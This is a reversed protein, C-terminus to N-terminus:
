NLSYASLFSDFTSYDHFFGNVKAIDFSDQAVQYNTRNNKVDGYYSYIVALDRHTRAFPIPYEFTYITLYENFASKAKEFNEERDQFSGLSTYSLGLKNLIKGYKFPKNKNTYALALKYHYISQEINTVNNPDAEYYSTGLGQQIEAYRDANIGLSINLAENYANIQNEFGDIDRGEHIKVLAYASSNKEDSIPPANCDLTFATPIAYTENLYELSENSYSSNKTIIALDHYADALGLDTYVLLRPTLYLPRFRFKKSRFEEPTLYVLGNVPSFVRVRGQVTKNEAIETIGNEASKYFEISKELNEKPSIFEALTLYNAGQIQNIVSNEIPFEDYTYIDLALDNSNISRQLNQIKNEEDSLLSYDQGLLMHIQAYQEQYDQKTIRALCNEYISIADKYQLENEYNQATPLQTLLYDLTNQHTIEENLQPLIYLPISVSIILAAISIILSIMPQYKLLCSQGQIEIQGSIILPQESLNQVNIKGNINIPKMFKNKLYDFVRNSM